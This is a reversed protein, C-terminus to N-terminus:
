TGFVQIEDYQLVGDNASKYGAASVLTFRLKQTSIPSAFTLRAWAQPQAYYCVHEWDAGTWRQLNIQLAYANSQKFIDLHTISRVSQLDVEFYQNDDGNSSWIGAAGNGMNSAPYGSYTTSATFVSPARALNATYTAGTASTRTVAASAAVVHITQYATTSSNKDSISLRLKTTTVPSGFDVKLISRAPTGDFAAIFQAKTVTYIPVYTGGDWYEIVLQSTYQKGIHSLWLSQITQASAWEMAAWSTTGETSLWQAVRSYSGVSSGTGYEGGSRVSNSFPRDTGSWLAMASMSELPQGAALAEAATYFTALPAAPGARGMLLGARGLM